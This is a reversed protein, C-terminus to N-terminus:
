NFFYIFRIFLALRRLKRWHSRLKKIKETTLTDPAFFSHNVENTFISLNELFRSHWRLEWARKRAPVAIESEIKEQYELLTDSPQYRTFLRSFLRTYRQHIKILRLGPDSTSFYHRVLFWLGASIAIIATIIPISLPINPFFPNQNDDFDEITSPGAPTEEAFPNAQRSIEPLSPTPEFPIWGYPAIYVEVWAHAQAETVLLADQSEAAFGGAYGVAIRAPLGEARAMVVMASAYYDCYGKKLDFLFYDVVDQDSPPLPIDLSYDYSRLYDAIATAKEYPSVATSTISAALERVRNPLTEPLSLYISRIADPAPLNSSLLDRSPVALTWASIVYNASVTQGAVYDGTVSHWDISVPQSVSVPRGPSYLTSGLQEARTINVTTLDAAFPDPNTITASPPVRSTETAGTQWGQGTYIDYARGFWYTTSWRDLTGPDPATENQPPSIRMVVM